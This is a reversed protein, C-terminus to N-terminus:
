RNSATHSAIQTHTGTVLNQIAQKHEMTMATPKEVKKGFITHGNSNIAKRVADKLSSRM